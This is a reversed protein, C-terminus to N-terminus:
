LKAFAKRALLSILKSNAGLKIQRKAKPSEAKMKREYTVCYVSISKLWLDNLDITKHFLEVKEKMFSPDIECGKLCLGLLTKAEDYQKDRFVLKARKYLSMVQFQIFQKLTLDSADKGYQKYFNEYTDYVDQYYKYAELKLGFEDMIEAQEYLSKAHLIHVQSLTELSEIYQKYSKKGGECIKMELGRDNIFIKQLLSSKLRLSKFTKHGNKEVKYSYLAMKNLNSFNIRDDIKALNIESYTQKKKKQVHKTKPNKSNRVESKSKQNKHSM